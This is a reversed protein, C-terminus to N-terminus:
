KNEEMQSKLKLFCKKCEVDEWHDNVCQWRKEKCLPRDKGNNKHTKHERAM